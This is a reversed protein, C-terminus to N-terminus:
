GVLCSDQKWERIAIRLCDLFRTCPGYMWTGDHTIVWCWSDGSIVGPKERVIVINFLSLKFRFRIM